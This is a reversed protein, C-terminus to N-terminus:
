GRLVERRELPKLKKPCYKLIWSTLPPYQPSTTGSHCTSLPLIAFMSQPFHKVWKIPYTRWRQTSSFFLILPSLPSLASRRVRIRNDHVGTGQHVLIVTFMPTPDNNKVICVTTLTSFVPRNSPLDVFSHIMRFSTRGCDVSM